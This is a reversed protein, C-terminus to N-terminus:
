KRLGALECKWCGLRDETEGGLPGLDGCSQCRGSRRVPLGIWARWKPFRVRATLESHSQPFSRM